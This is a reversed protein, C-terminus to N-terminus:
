QGRCELRGKVSCNVAHEIWDKPMWAHYARLNDEDLARHAGRIDPKSKVPPKDFNAVCLVECNRGLLDRYDSWMRFWDGRMEPLFNHAKQCYRNVWSAGVRYPDRYTTVVELDDGHMYLLRRWEDTGLHVQLTEPEYHQM